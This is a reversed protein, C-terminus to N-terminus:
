AERHRGFRNETGARLRRLNGRHTFVIFGALLGGAGVVWPDPGTTFWAAVPFVLAAIVSGVSVYGTAYVLAGWVVACILVALPALALAVGAGTAVGKGGRFRVFISFVHGAVAAAGVALPVWPAAGARPALLLVPVAGKGIDFVAVPAAYQWGLVRFLNTAGLNGSGRERLDVGAVLRSVLHSTPIAGIVYAGLLALLLSM